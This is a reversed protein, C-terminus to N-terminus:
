ENTDCRTDFYDSESTKMVDIVRQHTKAFAVIHLQLYSTCFDFKCKWVMFLVTKTAWNCKWNWIDRKSKILFELNEEFHKKYKM